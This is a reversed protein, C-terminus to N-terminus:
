CPCKESKKCLKYNQYHAFAIVLAGLTTLGKEGIEGLDSEGFVLASVLITLGLAGYLGISLKNHKKCGMTLAYISIPLVCVVMLIHFLEQNMATAIMTPLLVTILPLVLCHALCLVSLTIASKDLSNTLTKM